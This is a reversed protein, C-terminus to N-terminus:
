RNAIYSLITGWVGVHTDGRYVVMLGEEWFQIDGSDKANGGVIVKVLHLKPYFGVSKRNM